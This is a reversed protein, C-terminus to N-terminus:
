FGTSLPGSWSGYGSLVFRPWTRAVTVVIQQHVQEDYAQNVWFARRLGSTAAIVAAFPVALLAAHLTRSTAVLGQMHGSDTVM